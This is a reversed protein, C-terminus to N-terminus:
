ARSRQGHAADGTLGPLVPQQVRRRVGRSDVPAAVARDHLRALLASAPEDTPNQPVLHGEFAAKLISQRLADQDSGTTEITLSV